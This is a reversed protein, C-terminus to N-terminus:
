KGVAPATAPSAGAGAAAGTSNRNQVEKIAAERLANLERTAASLEKVAAAVNKAAEEVKLAATENTQYEQVVRLWARVAADHKDTLRAVRHEAELIAGRSTVHLDQVAVIASQTRRLDELMQDAQNLDKALEGVAEQATAVQQASAQGAKEKGVLGQCTSAAQNFDLLLQTVRGEADQLLDSEQTTPQSTPSPAAGAPLPPLLRAPIRSESRRIELVAEGQADRLLRRAMTVTRQANTMDTATATGDQRYRWVQELNSLAVLLRSNAERVKAMAPLDTFPGALPAAAAAPATAAPLSASPNYSPPTVGEQAPRMPYFPGRWVEGPRISITRGTASDLIFRREGVRIFATGWGQQMSVGAGNAVPCLPVRWMVRSDEDETRGFAIVWGNSLTTTVTIGPWTQSDTGSAGIGSGGGGGYQALAPGAPALVVSLSAAVVAAALFRDRGRARRPAIALQQQDM